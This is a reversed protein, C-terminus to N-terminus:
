AGKLLRELEEAVAVRFDALQQDLVEVATRFGLRDDALIAKKAAAFERQVHGLRFVRVTSLANHHVERYRKQDLDRASLQLQERLEVVDLMIQGLFNRYDAPVGEFIDKVESFDYTRPTAAPPVSPLTSPLLHPAAQNEGYREILHHLYSPEFPKLVLGNIGAALMRANIDRSASASLAIIPLNAVAPRHNSRIMRALQYGDIDPMHLDILAVDFKREELAALAERSNTFQEFHLRWERFYRANILLNSQNDDVNLVRLHNLPTLLEPSRPSHLSDDSALEGAALLRLSFTFTTGSGLESVVLLDSGHAQVIQQAIALGLGTGGFQNGVRASAQTFPEFIAELRDPSIGPGTDTVSFSLEHAGNAPVHGVHVTVSGETTFKAANSILNNLVQGLKHADGLLMPIGQEPYVFRLEVGRHRCLHEYTERLHQLLERLYFPRPDLELNGSQLKSVDLIDNVLGLLNRSAARLAVILEVQEPRPQEKLLFNGGEIIAYLPTRIEHSMTSLFTAKTRDAAEAAEKADMLERELRQREEFPSLVYLYGESPESIKRGSVTVPVRTGDKAVVDFQLEMVEGDLDLRVLHHTDFFIKSGISLLDNLRRQGILESSAYGLWDTVKRNVFSIVQTRDTRIVGCPLLDFAANDPQQGTTLRVPNM